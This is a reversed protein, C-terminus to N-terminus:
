FLLVDFVYLIKIIIELIYFYKIGPQEVKLDAWFAGFKEHFEENGEEKQIAAENLSIFAAIIFPSFTMLVFVVVATLSQLFEAVNTSNVVSVNLAACLYIVLFSALYLEIFVGYKFSSLKKSLYSRLKKFRYLMKLLIFYILLSVITTLYLFLIDASGLVLSEFEFGANEFREAKVDSTVVFPIFQLYEAMDYFQFNM